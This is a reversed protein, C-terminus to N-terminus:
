RSRRTLTTLPRRTCFRRSTESHLVEGPDTRAKALAEVSVQHWAIEAEPKPQPLRKADRRLPYFISNGSDTRSIFV